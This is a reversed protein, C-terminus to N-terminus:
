ANRTSSRKDEQTTTTTTTPQIPFFHMGAFAVAFSATLFFMGLGANWWRSRRDREPLISRILDDFFYAAIFALVASVSNTLILPLTGYMGATYAIEQKIIEEAQKKEEAFSARSKSM